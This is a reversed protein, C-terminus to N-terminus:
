HNATTNLPSFHTFNAHFICKRITYDILALFRSNYVIDRVLLPKNGHKIHNPQLIYLLMGYSCLCCLSLIVPLTNNPPRNGTARVINGGCHATKGAFFGSKLRNQATKGSSRLRFFMGHLVGQVGQFVTQGYTKVPRILPQTANKAQKAM